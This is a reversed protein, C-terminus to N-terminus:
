LKSATDESIDTTPKTTVDKLSGGTVQELTDIDLEQCEKEMDTNKKNDQM